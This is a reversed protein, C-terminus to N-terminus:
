PLVEYICISTILTGGHRRGGSARNLYSTRSSSNPGFRAKYTRETTSSSAVKHVLTLVEEWGNAGVVTSATALADATSDVFLSVVNNGLGDMGVFPCNVQIILDSSASVPTIAQTLFETGETNQPITDDTPIANTTSFTTATSGYVVQLVKGTTITQWSLTGSGDTQLYQGSSGASTPLTLTVDTGSPSTDAPADLAVSGSTSGNLKIAM